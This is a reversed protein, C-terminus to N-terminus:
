QGIAQQEPMVSPQADILIYTPTGAGTIESVITKQLEAICQHNTLRDIRELDDETLHDAVIGTITGGEKPNFDFFGSERTVGRFVGATKFTAQSVEKELHEAALAVRDASILQSPQNSVALRIEAGYQALTRMFQKLPQLMRPPIGKVDESITAATSNSIAVLARGVNRLAQAHVELLTDDDTPKPTFELGFSGRPTGAFLLGPVPAGRPRRHRGMRRAAEREDHIAQEEFMKEYQILVEGALFPSIGESGTVGGGRLFVAARPLMVHETPLLSGKQHKAAEIRSQVEALRARLQPEMVPDDKAKELLRGLEIAQLQLRIVNSM